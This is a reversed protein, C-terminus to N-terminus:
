MTMDYKGYSLKKLAEFAADQVLSNEDNMAASLREM